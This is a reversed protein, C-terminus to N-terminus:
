RGQFPRLTFRFELRVRVPRHKVRGPSFLADQYTSLLGEELIRPLTSTVLEGSGPEVHGLTDITMRLTMEGRDTRVGYQNRDAGWEATMRNIDFGDILHPLEDLGVCRPLCTFLTDEPSGPAAANAIQALWLAGLAPDAAMLQPPITASDIALASRFARAALSDNGEYFRVVGDLVYATAPQAPPARRDDHVLQVLALASDLHRLALQHRAADLQRADDQGALRAAAVGLCGLVTGIRIM